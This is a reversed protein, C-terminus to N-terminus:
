KLNAVDFLETIKYNYVTLNLKTAGESISYTM